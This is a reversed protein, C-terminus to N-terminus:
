WEEGEEVVRGSRRCRGERGDRLGGVVVRARWCWVEGRWWGEEVM